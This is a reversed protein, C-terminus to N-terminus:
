YLLLFIYDHHLSYILGCPPKGSISETIYLIIINNNNLRKKTKDKDQKYDDICLTCTYKTDLLAYRYAIYKCYVIVDM